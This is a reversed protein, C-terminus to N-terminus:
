LELSFTIAAYDGAHELTAAGAGVVGAVARRGTYMVLGPGSGSGTCHNIQETVDTLDGNTFGGLVQPTSQKPSPYFAAYSVVLANDSTTTVGPFSLATTSAHTTGNSGVINAGGEFNTAIAIKYDDGVVADSITPDALPLIDDATVLRSWLELRANLVNGANHQPAGTLKVWLPDAISYAVNGLGALAVVLRDGVTHPPLLPTASSASDREVFTSTAKYCPLTIPADTIYDFILDSIDIGADAYGQDTYHAEGPRYPTQDRRLVRTPPYGAAYNEIAARINGATDVTSDFRNLVILIQGFEARIKDEMMEVLKTYYNTYYDGVDSEGQGFVLILNNELDTIGFTTIKDQLWSIFQAVIQPGGTPYSANGWVAAMSTGSISFKAGYWTDITRRALERLATQEWGGTGVPFTSGIALTRPGLDSPGENVFVPPDAGNPANRNVFQVASFPVTLDVAGGPPSYTM